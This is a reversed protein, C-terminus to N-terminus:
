VICSPDSRGRPSNGANTAYLLPLYTFFIHQSLTIFCIKWPHDSDFFSAKWRYQECCTTSFRKMWLTNCRPFLLYILTSRSSSSLGALIAEISFCIFSVLDWPNSGGAIWDHVVKFLHWANLHWLCRSGFFHPLFCTLIDNRYIPSSRVLALKFPM